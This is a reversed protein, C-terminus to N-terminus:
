SKAKRNAAAAQCRASNQRYAAAYNPDREMLFAHCARSVQASTQALYVEHRAARESIEPVETATRPM